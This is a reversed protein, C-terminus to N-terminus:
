RWVLLVGEEGKRLRDVQSRPCPSLQTPKLPNVLKTRNRPPNHLSPNSPPQLVNPTSLTRKKGIKM